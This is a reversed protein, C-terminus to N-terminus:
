FSRRTRLSYEKAVKLEVIVSANVLFILGPLRRRDAQVMVKFKSELEAVSAACSWGVQHRAPVGERSAMDWYGISKM